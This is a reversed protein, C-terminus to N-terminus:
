KKLEYYYDGDDPIFDIIEDQRNYCNYLPLLLDNIKDEYEKRNAMYSGNNSMCFSNFKHKVLDDILYEEGGEIDIKLFDPRGYLSVMKDITTTKIKIGNPSKHNISSLSDGFKGGIFGFEVVGEEKYLGERILKINSINNDKIHEALVNAAVFDPEFAFVNTFIKSGYLSFPGIWAGIDWFNLGGKNREIWNFTEKDWSELGGWLWGSSNNNITFDFGRIKIKM